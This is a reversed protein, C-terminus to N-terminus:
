HEVRTKQPGPFVVVSAFSIREEDGPDDSEDDAERQGEDQDNAEHHSYPLAIVAINCYDTPLYPKEVHRHRLLKWVHAVPDEPTFDTGRRSGLSACNQWLNSKSDFYGYCQM